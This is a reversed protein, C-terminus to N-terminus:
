IAQDSQQVGFFKKNQLSGDILDSMLGNFNNVSDVLKKNVLGFCGVFVM